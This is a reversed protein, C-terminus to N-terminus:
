KATTLFAKRETEEILLEVDAQGFRAREPVAKAFSTVEALAGDKMQRLMGDLLGQTRYVGGRMPFLEENHDIAEVLGNYAEWASHDGTHKTGETWMRVIEAGKEEYRTIVGSAGRAEPNWNKRRTPHVGISPLLVLQRFQSATLTTQKLLRYSEAAVEARKVLGGFLKEAAAVMKQEVDGTHRVGIAKTEGDTEEGIDSEAKTGADIQTEILGVTNACVARVLTLIIENNRRGSHNVKVMVFPNVGLEPFVERATPGFTDLNLTGLLWADAGDRLVGGTELSVLKNDVLPGITLAFADKNQVVKYDPGVSGLEISRDPRYTVFARKSVVGNTGDITVQRKEILYDLQGIKLAEDLSPHDALVKGERHWATERVSFFDATKNGAADTTYSLEASM